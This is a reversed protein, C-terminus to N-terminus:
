SFYGVTVCFDYKQTLYPTKVRITASYWIFGVRRMKKFGGVIKKLNKIKM